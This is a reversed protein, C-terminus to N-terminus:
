YMYYVLGLIHQAYCTRSIADLEDVKAKSTSEITLCTQLHHKARRFESCRFNNVKLIYVKGRVHPRHSHDSIDQLNSIIVSTCVDFHCKKTKALNDPREGKIPSLSRSVIAFTVRASYSKSSSDNSGIVASAFSKMEFNSTLSLLYANNKNNSTIWNLLSKRM